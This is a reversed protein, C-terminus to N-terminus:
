NLTDLCNAGAAVDMVFTTNPHSQLFTAPIDSRIDGELTKKSIASKGEGWAVIIIRKAKLITGIGMTIAKVPVNEEGFFDSAADIRTIHDLNIMRTTSDISFGPENFGIHGTRGIGLLQLDLGGLEDIKREYEKCYDGVKDKSLTGDPIHINEPKIDIYDFLNEQM